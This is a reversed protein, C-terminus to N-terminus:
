PSKKRLLCLWSGRKACLCAAFISGLSICLEALNPGVNGGRPLAALAESRNAFLKAGAVHEANLEPVTQM